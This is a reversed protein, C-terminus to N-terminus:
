GGTGPYQDPNVGAVSEVCNGGPGATVAADDPSLVKSSSTTTSASAAAAAAAAPAATDASTTASSSANADVLGLWTEGESRPFSVSLKGAPGARGALVDALAEGAAQGAFLQFVISPVDAARNHHPIVLSLTSWGPHTYISTYRNIPTLWGPRM